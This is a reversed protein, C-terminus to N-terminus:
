QRDAAPPAPLSRDIEFIVQATLYLLQRAEDRAVPRGERQGAHELRQALDNVTGWYALLAELVAARREGLSERHAAIVSRVRAVTKAPDAPANAVEHLEVLESAFSQLAERATHGVVTLNEGRGSVLQQEARLWLRYAEPYRSAIVDGRLYGTVDKEITAVRDASDRLLDDYTDYGRKTLVFKYGYLANIQTWEVLGASELKSVDNWLAPFHVDDGVTIFDGEEGGIHFERDHNPRALSTEALRKFLETQGHTLQTLVPAAHTESSGLAAEGRPTVAVDALGGQQPQGRIMGNRLLYEVVMWHTHEDAGPLDSSPGNTGAPAFLFGSHPPDDYLRRLVHVARDWWRRDRLPREKNPWMGLWALGRITLRPREWLRLSGDGEIWRGSMLGAAVADGFAEHVEEAPIGPVQFGADGGPEANLDLQFTADRQALEALVLRM